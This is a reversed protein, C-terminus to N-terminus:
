CHSRPVYYERTADGPHGLSDTFAHEQEACRVVSAFAGKKGGRAM